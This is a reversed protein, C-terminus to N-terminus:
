SLIECASLIKTYDSESSISFSRGSLKSQNPTGLETTDKLLKVMMIIELQDLSIIFCQCFHGM